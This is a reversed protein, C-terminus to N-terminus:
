QYKKVFDVSNWELFNHSFYMHVILVNKSCFAYPSRYLKGIRMKRVGKATFNGDYSANSNLM